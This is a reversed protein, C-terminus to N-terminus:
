GETVYFNFVYLTCTRTTMEDFSEMRQDQYIMNIFDFLEKGKPADTQTKKKPPM